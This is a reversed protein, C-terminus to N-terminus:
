LLRQQLPPASFGADKVAHWILWPSRADSFRARWVDDPVFRTATREASFKFFLEHYVFGSETQHEKRSIQM